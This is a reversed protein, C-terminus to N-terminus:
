KSQFVPSAVAAHILSRVGYKEPKAAAVAEEVADHDSFQLPAGTGYTLLRGLFARALVEPRNEYIKKWEWINQFPAGDPTVGSPDVKAAKKDTGYAVRWRGTPDYSELAFGAPDIKDHCAACSANDRHKELQDRISIAGRIDPEVAPINPPPPLTEMGLIRENVWIGRLVPSTISGDATVKLVSGQTVLGSRTGAPLSVRQLGGGPTVPLDKLQYHTKLRTNLM